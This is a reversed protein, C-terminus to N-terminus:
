LVKLFSFVMSYILLCAYIKRESIGHWVDAGSVGV